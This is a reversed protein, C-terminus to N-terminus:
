RRPRLRRPRAVGDPGTVPEAQSLRRRLRDLVDQDMESPARVSFAKGALNVSRWLSLVALVLDPSAVLDLEGKVQAIEGFTHRSTEVLEERSPGGPRPDLCDRVLSQHKHTLVLLKAVLPRAQDRQWNSVDNRRSLHASYGINVIGAAAAVGTATFGAVVALDVM